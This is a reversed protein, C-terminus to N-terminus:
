AQEERLWKVRASEIMIKIGRALADAELTAMEKAADVNASAFDKLLLEEEVLFKQRPTDSNRSSVLDHYTYILAVAGIRGQRLFKRPPILRLMKSFEVRCTKCPLVKALDYLYVEFAKATSGFDRPMNLAIVHLSRWIYPGWKTARFAIREEDPPDKMASEVASYMLTAVLLTSALIYM